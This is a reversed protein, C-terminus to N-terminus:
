FNITSLSTIINVKLIFLKDMLYINYDMKFIKKVNVTNIQCYIVQRNIYIM